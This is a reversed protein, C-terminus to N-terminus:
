KSRRRRDTMLEDYATASDLYVAISWSLRLWISIEVVHLSTNLIRFNITEFIESDCQLCIWWNGIAFMENSSYRQKYFKISTYYCRARSYSFIFCVRVCQRVSIIRTHNKCVYVFGSRREACVCAFLLSLVNLFYIYASATAAHVCFVSMAFIYHLSLSLFFLEKRKLIFRFIQKSGTLYLILRSRNRFTLCMYKKQEM